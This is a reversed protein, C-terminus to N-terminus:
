NKEEAMHTSNLHKSTLRVAETTEELKRWCDLQAKYYAPIRDLTYGAYHGPIPKLNEMPLILPTSFSLIFPNLSFFLILGAMNKEKLWNDRLYLPIKFFM